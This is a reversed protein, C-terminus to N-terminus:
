ERIPLSFPTVSLLVFLFFFLSFPSFFLRLMLRRSDTIEPYQYKSDCPSRGRCGVVGRRM